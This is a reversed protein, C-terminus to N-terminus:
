IIQKGSCEPTRDGGGVGGGGQLVGELGPVGGGGGRVARGRTGPRHPRLTVPTQVAIDGGEQPASSRGWRGGSGASGPGGDGLGGAVGTQHPTARSGAGGCCRRWGPLLLLLHVGRGPPPPTQQWRSV